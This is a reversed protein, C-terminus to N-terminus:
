RHLLSRGTRHPVANPPTSRQTSVLEALKEIALPPCTAHLMAHCNPCVPRLDEVPDVVYESGLTSLPKIHHVHIFGRGIAGYALEFDFKCVICKTGYHDICAQRAQPNREFANVSVSKVAGEFYAQADAVEDSFGFSGVAPRGPASPAVGEVVWYSRRTKAPRIRLQECLSVYQKETTDEEAHQRQLVSNIQRTTNTGHKEEFAEHKLRSNGLYGAFRSPCFMTRTGSRFCVFIKGRKLLERYFSREPEQDSDRYTDFLAVTEALEEKSRILKMETGIATSLYRAVM